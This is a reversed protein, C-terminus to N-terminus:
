HYKVILTPLTSHSDTIQNTKLITFSFKGQKAQAASCGRSNVGFYIQTWLFIYGLGYMEKITTSRLATSFFVMLNMSNPFNALIFASNKICPSFFPFLNVLSNLSNTNTSHAHTCTGYGYAIMFQLIGSGIKFCFSGM